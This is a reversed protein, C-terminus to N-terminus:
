GGAFIKRPTEMILHYHNEMLCYAHCVWEFRAIASSLIDLFGDWDTRDLFIAQRGNGRSTIHYLAGAFEIRLPRAM